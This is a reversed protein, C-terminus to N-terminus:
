FELTRNDLERIDAESLRALSAAMRAMDEETFTLEEAPTTSGHGDRRTGLFSDNPQSREFSTM